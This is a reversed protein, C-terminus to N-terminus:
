HERDQSHTELANQIWDKKKTGTEILTFSDSPYYWWGLFCAFDPSKIQFKLTHECKVDAHTNADVDGDFNLM